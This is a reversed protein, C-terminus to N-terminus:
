HDKGELLERTEAEHAAAYLWHALLTGTLGLGTSIGAWTAVTKWGEDSVPFHLGDYWGAVGGLAPALAVLAIATTIVALTNRVPYAAERAAQAHPFLGM